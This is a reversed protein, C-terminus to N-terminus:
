FVFVAVTYQKKEQVAVFVTNNFFNYCPGKAGLIFGAANKGQGVFVAVFFQTVGGQIGVAGGSLHRGVDKVKAMRGGYLLITYFQLLYRFTSSM